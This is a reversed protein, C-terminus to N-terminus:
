HTFGYGVAEKTQAIFTFADPDVESIVTRTLNLERKHIVCIILKKSETTYGGQADIVTTGRKVRKYIAEKIKDEKGVETIIFLTHGARGAISLHDVILSALLVSGLSYLFLEFDRFVVLSILVIIGDTLMFAIQYSLHLKKNLINQGIDIGGTSGGNRFVLGVGTGVFVSALVTSLMIKTEATKLLDVILYKSLFTEFIFLLFTLYLAGFITKNTYEKGLFIYGIVLFIVNLVATTAWIPFKVKNLIIAIGSVGGTVLDLPSLFFYIGFALITIGLIVVLHEIITKNYKIM